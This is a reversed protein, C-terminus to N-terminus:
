EGMAAREGENAIHGMSHTLDSLETLRKNERAQLQDLMDPARPHPAEAAVFAESEADPLREEALQVVRSKLAKKVPVTTAAVPAATAAVVPAVTAAVVPTVTAAVVPTVTQPAIPTATQQQQQKVQQVKESVIEKGMKEVAQTLAKVEANSTGIKKSSEAVQKKIDAKLVSIEKKVDVPKKANKKDVEDTLKQLEAKETRVAVALQQMEKLVTKQKKLANASQKGQVDLQKKMGIVQKAMSSYLQLDEKRDAEQKALRQRLEGVQGSMAALQADVSPQAQTRVICGTGGCPSPQQCGASPCPPAVSSCGGATQTYCAVTPAAVSTAPMAAPTIRSSIKRLLSVLESAQGGSLSLGAAVPKPQPKPQLSAGLVNSLDKVETALSDVHDNLASASVEGLSTTRVTRRANLPHRLIARHLSHVEMALKSLVARGAGKHAARSLSAHVDSRMAGVDSALKM